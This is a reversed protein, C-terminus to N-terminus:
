CTLVVALIHDAGLKGLKTAIYAIHKRRISRGKWKRQKIVEEHSNSDSKEM